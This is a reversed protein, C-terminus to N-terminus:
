DKNKINKRTLRYSDAVLQTIIECDLSDDLVVSIWHEKNMHYAPVIAEHTEKLFDGFMPDTKLNVWTKGQRQFILAFMKKNQTHRVASTEPSSRFPYDEYAGSFSLCLETIEDRSILRGNALLSEGVM